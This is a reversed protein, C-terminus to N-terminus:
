TEGNENTANCIVRQPDFKDLYSTLIKGSEENKSLCCHHLVTNGNYDKKSLDVGHNLLYEVVHISKPDKVAYMLATAGNDDVAEVPIGRKVLYDVCDYSGRWAALHLATRGRPDRASILHPEHELLFMVSSLHGLYAAFLLGARGCPESENVPKDAEVATAATFSCM